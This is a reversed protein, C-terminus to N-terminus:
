VTLHLRPPPVLAVRRQIFEQPIMVPDTTVDRWPTKSKIEVREFGAGCM